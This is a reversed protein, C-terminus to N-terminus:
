FATSYRRPIEALVTLCAAIAAAAFVAAAVAFGVAAFRFDVLSLPVGVAALVLLGTLLPTLARAPLALGLLFLCGFQGLGLLLFGVLGALFVLQSGHELVGSLVLAEYVLATAASLAGLVVAYRALGSLVYSRVGRRFGDAATERRLARAVDWFSRLVRESVGTALVVPVLAVLLSLELTTVRDIVTDDGAGMWGLLHPGILFLAFASGFLVYPASDLLLPGTANPLLTPRRRFPYHLCWAVLLAATTAAYGIAVGAPTGLAVGSVIALALGGVLTGCVLASAGALSLGSALLWLLAYAVLAAAFISREELSLVSLLSTVGLALVGVAICALLTALSARTIFRRASDVQEFGLYVSTRRGIAVIPGSTLLMSATIGISLALIAGTGWGALALAQLGILLVCLPALALLGGVLANPREDRQPEPDHGVPASEGPRARVSEFVQDALEFADSVGYDEAAVTDTIGMSEVVAAIELVDIPQPVREGVNRVLLDLKAPDHTSM